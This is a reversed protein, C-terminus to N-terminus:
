KKEAPKTAPAPAPAPAAAPAPKTETKKEATKAKVATVSSAKGDAHKVVVKDGVKFDGLKVKEGASLEVNGKKGKVTFTGAAADLAEITGTLQQAKPKPKAAKEAKKEAAPAPAPASKVANDAAIAIGAVSLAFAVALVATFMKKM